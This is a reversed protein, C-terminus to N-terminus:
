KQWWDFRKEIRIIRTNNIEMQNFIWDILRCWRLTNNHLTHTTTCFVTMDNWMVIYFQCEIMRLYKAKANNLKITLRFIACFFLFPIFYDLIACRNSKLWYQHLSFSLLLFLRTVFRCISTFFFRFFFQKFMLCISAVIYKIYINMPAVDRRGIPLMVQKRKCWFVSNCHIYRAVFDFFKFLHILLIAIDIHQIYYSICTNFIFSFNLQAVFVKICCAFRILIYSTTNSLGQFKKLDWIFQKQFQIFYTSCQNFDLIGCVFWIYVPM